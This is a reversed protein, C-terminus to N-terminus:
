VGILRLTLAQTPGVVLRELVNLQPILYGIFILGMLVFPGTQATRAWLESPGEPLWGLVARFGDLPALPILNFFLLTVNLGISTLVVDALFRNGSVGVLRWLLALVVALLLNTLPGAVAVLAMDRRGNRLNAPNVMVPKAWGFGVSLVMLIGFVDLHKIPNLTLRGMNKATPDGLRYAVWAHAFEHFTFAPILAILLAITQEQSRGFLMSYQEREKVPHNGNYRAPPLQQIGAASGKQGHRKEIRKALL